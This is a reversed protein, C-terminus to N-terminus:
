EYINLKNLAAQYLRAAKLHDNYNTTFSHYGSLDANACFYLFNHDEANLVADITSTEPLCIPGPPLGAYYYTNYPHDYETHVNLVRKISLDGLAFKVTPDAQLKMGLDIRNLYVGAIRKREDGFKYEKEVISAVVFAQDPSIGLEKAKALREENWFSDHFDTFKTLLSELSMNWYVEYTNPIFLCMINDENYGLAKMQEEDNLVNWISLSDVEIQSSIKAALDEKFNVNNLVLKVPTQMGGRLKSIVDYNSSGEEFVYRGAYVNNKLNMKEALMYFATENSIMNKQELLSILGDYNTNSPVYLETEEYISTGFFFSYAYFAALSGLLIIAIAIYKLNKM